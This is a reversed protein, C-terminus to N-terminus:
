VEKEKNQETIGTVVVFDPNRVRLSKADRGFMVDLVGKKNFTYFM